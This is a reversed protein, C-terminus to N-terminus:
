GALRFTWWRGPCLGQTLVLVHFARLICEIDVRALSSTASRRGLALGVMGQLLVHERHIRLRIACDLQLAEGRPAASMRRFDSRGKSISIREGGARTLERYCNNM